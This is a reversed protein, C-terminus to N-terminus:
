AQALNSMQAAQPRQRRAPNAERKGLAPWGPDDLTPWDKKKWHFGKQEWKAQQKSPGFERKDLSTPGAKEDKKEFSAPEAEGGRKKTM